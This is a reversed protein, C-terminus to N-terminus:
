SLHFLLPPSINKRFLLLLLLLKFLHYERCLCCSGVFAAATTAAATTAAASAAALLLCCCCCCAALLLLLCCYVKMERQRTRPGSRWTKSGINLEALGFVASIRADCRLPRGRRWCLGDYNNLMRGRDIQTKGSDMTEGVHQLCELSEDGNGGASVDDGADLIETKL